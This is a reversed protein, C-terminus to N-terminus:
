IHRRSRLSPAHLEKINLCVISHPNMRFSTRSMIIVHLGYMRNLGNARLYIICFVSYIIYVCMYIYIMYLIYVYIYIYIYIYM